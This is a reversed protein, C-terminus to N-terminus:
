PLLMFSQVNTKTCLIFIKLRLGMECRDGGELAEMAVSDIEM